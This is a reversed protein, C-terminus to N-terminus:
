ARCARKNTRAGHAAEFASLGVCVFVRREGPYREDLQLDKSTVAMTEEGTCRASLTLNIDLFDEDDTAEYITRM